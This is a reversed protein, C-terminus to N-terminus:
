RRPRGLPSNREPKGVFDKYVGRRKRIHKSNQNFLVIRALVEAAFVGM